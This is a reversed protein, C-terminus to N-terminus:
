GCRTTGLVQPLDGMPVSGITRTRNVSGLPRDDDPDYGLVPAIEQLITRYWTRQAPSFRGLIEGVTMQPVPGVNVRHRIADEIVDPPYRVTTLQELVQGCYEPEQLDEIRLVLDVAGLLRVQSAFTLLDHLFIRDVPSVAEIDIDWLRRITLRSTVPVESYSNDVPYVRLRTNLVRAPHRMLVASAFKGGLVVTHTTWGSGVDGAALYAGHMTDGALWQILEVIDDSDFSRRPFARSIVHEHLCLVDPHSNLLKALWTSGTHGMRTILFRRHAGRLEIRGLQESVRRWAEAHVEDLVATIQQPGTSTV